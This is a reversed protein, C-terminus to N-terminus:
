WERDGWKGWHWSQPHSYMLARGAWVTHSQHTLIPWFYRYHYSNVSKKKVIECFKKIYKRPDHRGLLIRRDFHLTLPIFCNNWLNKSDEIQKEFFELSIYDYISLNEVMIEDQKRFCLFFSFWNLCTKPLNSINPTVIYLTLSNVSRM